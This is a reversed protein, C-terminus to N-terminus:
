TKNIMTAGIIEDDEEMVFAYGGLSPIEKAAYLLSKKLASKNGESNELHQHLFIIIKNIYLFSLRKYAYFTTTDM